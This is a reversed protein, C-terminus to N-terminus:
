LFAEENQEILNKFAQFESDGLILPQKVSKKYNAMFYRTADKILEDLWEQNEIRQQEYEPFLWIKQYSRELMPRSHELEGFATRVQWMKLILHDVYEQVRYKIGKRININNYDSSLLKHFAQFTEKLAKPHIVDGFFNRTPLRISRPSLEPPLSRLLHAKGAYRNNLVSINQPKTGGYGITTLNYIEQYGSNSFQNNKKQERAVKTEESFRLHDLRKRLEFLHGSHTLISLLHYEKNAPNIPFYVQKIQSSTVTEGSPTVMALFGEKLSLMDGDEVSLLKNALETDNQIHSILTDGDQMILTLFKYVDLAAANGLADTDVTVNGSRLFGDESAKSKAFIPTTKGNKNKGASPHSFTCPHTALSIQGARRAANPLWTDLAFVEECEQNLKNLEEEDMSSKIKKKLWAEKRGKFFDEIAPDLV